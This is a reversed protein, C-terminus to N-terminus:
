LLKALRSTEEETLKKLPSSAVMKMLMNLDANITFTAQTLAGDPTLAWKLEMEFPAKEAPIIRILQNAIREEIRLALQTINEINFRAEDVTSLWNIINDPMLAKHNNMDALYAYVKEVSSNVTVTSEFISM